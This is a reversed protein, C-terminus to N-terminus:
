VYPTTPLTLHTYSVAALNQELQTTVECQISISSVDLSAGYKMESEGNKIVSNLFIKGDKEIGAKIKKNDWENSFSVGDSNMEASLNEIEFKQANALVIQQQDITVNITESSDTEASGSVTVNYTASMDVGLPVTIEYIGEEMEVNPYLTTLWNSTGSLYAMKEEDSLAMFEDYTLDLNDVVDVYDTAEDVKGDSVLTKVVSMNAANLKEKDADLIAKYKKIDLNGGNPDILGSLDDIYKVWLNGTNIYQSLKGMYKTDVSQVNAFIEEIQRKTAKNKNILNSYYNGVSDICGKIGLRSVIAPISVNYFVITNAIEEWRQKSIISDVYQLLEQKAEGSFDRVM